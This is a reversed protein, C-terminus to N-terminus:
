EGRVELFFTRRSGRRITFGGVPADIYKALVKGSLLALRGHESRGRSLVYGFLDHEEVIALLDRASIKTTRFTEWWIAVFDRLDEGEPDAERIWDRWNTMWNSYGHLRMIGSVTAAWGEFGGMRTAGTPRGAELWEDVMGVLCSLVVRRRRLVHGFLDPHKFDDRLEPADTEPQLTIPVSRRVIESTARPNNATAIVTLQNELKVVQSKGLVRGQYYKSTILSAISASDLFSGVNDAHLITEGQRLLSLIRKDQEEDNTSWKMAPTEEGIYVGGVVQEALKTKGTRPLSSKILHMPVNGEIAPRILPTLLLGIMNERDAETRFPFDILLDDIAGLDKKARIDELDEPQDYFVGDHWGPEVRRWGRLFVPHRTLLRLERIAPHDAGAAIVIGAHDRTASKFSRVDKKNKVFEQALKVNSDIIIRARDASLARITKKGRDGVIEASGGGRKYISGAPLRRIVEQAFQHAGIETTGSKSYHGGPTLVYGNEPTTITPAKRNAADVASRITNRAEVIPLTTAKMLLSELEEQPLKGDSALKYAVKNLTDNRQGKPASRIASLLGDIVVGSKKPKKRSARLIWAPLEAISIESPSNIYTYPMKSEPHLSGVAVVQGGDGRIDVLKAIKSASNGIPEDSHYYLHMGGSGTRVTVTDPLELHSIDANHEVDVVVLGGSSSGTRIGVNGKKAWSLAEKLSERPRESWGKEIPRKGRLRLYSWGLSYGQETAEIRNM